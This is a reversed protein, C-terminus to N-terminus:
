NDKREVPEGKSDCLVGLALYFVKGDASRWRGIVTM